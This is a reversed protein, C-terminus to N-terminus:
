VVNGGEFTEAKHVESVSTTVPLTDLVVSGGEADHQRKTRHSQHSFPSVPKSNPENAWKTGGVVEASGNFPPHDVLGRHIRAAGLATIVVQTCFMVTLSSSRLKSAAPERALNQFILNFPDNLNLLIFVTPPLEALTVIVIWTFCQMRLLQWVGRTSPANKWRMLGTLMLVLLILDTTFTSLVGIRSHDTHLVTCSREDWASRLTTLSYVYTAADGIWVICAFAIIIKNRNWLVAIRLIILASAFVFSLYGLMFALIVWAQCDIKRSVDFGVFQSTIAFLPSWRCGLYLPFSWTFKRKRTIVSYEFGLCTIFEWIYIGGIVHIFKILALEEAKVTDPDRWNVM